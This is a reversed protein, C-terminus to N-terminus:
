EECRVGRLESRVQLAKTQRRRRGGEATSERKHEGRGEGREGVGWKEQGRGGEGAGGRVKEQGRGRVERASAGGGGGGWRRGSRESRM